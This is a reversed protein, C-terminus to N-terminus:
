LLPTFTDVPSTDGALSGLFVRAEGGREGLATFNRAFADRVPEFGEAVTGHLNVDVDADGDGDM